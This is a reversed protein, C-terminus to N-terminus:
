TIEEYERTTEEEDGGDNAVEITRGSPTASENTTQTSPSQETTIVAPAQTQVSEDTAEPTSVTTTETGVNAELLFVGSFTIEDPPLAHVGGEEAAASLGDNIGRIMSEVVNALEEKTRIVLNEM